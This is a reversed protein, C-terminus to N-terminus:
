KNKPAVTRQVPQPQTGGIITITDEDAKATKKEAPVAFAVDRKVLAADLVDEASKCFVFTVNERVVTDM